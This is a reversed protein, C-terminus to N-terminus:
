ALEFSDLVWSGVDLNEWDSPSFSFKSEFNLADSGLAAWDSPSFPMAPGATYEYM